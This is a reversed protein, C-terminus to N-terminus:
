PAPTPEPAPEPEPPPAWTACLSAYSARRNEFDALAAAVARQVATPDPVAPVGDKAEVVALGFGRLTADGAGARAFEASVHVSPYEGTIPDRELYHGLGNDYVRVSLTHGNEDVSARGAYDIVVGWPQTPDINM